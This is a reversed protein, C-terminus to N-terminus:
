YHPTQTTSTSSGFILPKIEYIYEPLLMCSIHMHHQMQSFLGFLEASYSPLIIHCIDFWHGMEIEAGTVRVIIACSMLVLFMAHSDISLYSSLNIDKEAGLHIRDACFADDKEEMSFDSNPETNLNTVVAM